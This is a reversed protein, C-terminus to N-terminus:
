QLLLMEKQKYQRHLDNLLFVVVGFASILMFVNEIVSFLKFQTLITKIYPYIVMAIISVITLSMYMLINTSKEKQTEAKKIKKMVLTTVDFSFTEPKIKLMSDILFQYEELKKQCSSCVTLHSAITDDQIEKLLFAQLIEDTIHNNKM